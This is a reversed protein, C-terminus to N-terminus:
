LPRRGITFRMKERQARVRWCRPLGPVRFTRLRALEARKLVAYRAVPFAFMGQARPSDPYGHARQRPGASASVPASFPTCGGSFTEFHGMRAEKTHPAHSMQSPLPAGKPRFHVASSTTQPTKPCPEQRRGPRQPTHARPTCPPIIARTNASPLRLGPSRLHALM